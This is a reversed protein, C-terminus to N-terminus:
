SAPHFKEVKTKLHSFEKRSVADSLDAKLGDIEDKLWHHHNDVKKVLNDVAGNMKDFEPKVLDAHYSSLQNHVEDSVIKKVDEKTPFGSLDDKTAFNQADEKTLFTQRLLEIDASNLTAKLKGM